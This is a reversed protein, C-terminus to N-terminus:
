VGPIVLVLLLLMFGQYGRQHITLYVKGTSEAKISQYEETKAATMIRLTDM